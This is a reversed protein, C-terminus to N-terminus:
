DAKLAHIRGGQVQLDDRVEIVGPVRAAVEAANDADDLTPVTGRLRVVGARSSVRVALGATASDEKLERLIAAVIAEDGVGSLVSADVELSDMSSAEFGGILERSTGVPDIAAMYVEDGDSSVDADIGTPGAGSAGLPDSLVAQDTFDGPELGGSDELGATSGVFSGADGSALEMEGIREPLVQSLELNDEIPSEPAVSAVVDLIAGRERESGILGSLVITGHDEEVAVYAGVARLIRREITGTLTEM